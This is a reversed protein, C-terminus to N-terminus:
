TFRALIEEPASDQSVGALADERGPAALEGLARYFAIKAAGGRFQAGAWTSVYGMGAHRELLTHAHAIQAGALFEMHLPRMADATFDDVFRQGHANMETGVIIPLARARAADVFANLLAVKKAREEPAKLNWNRDPIINVAEVGQATMVDLLEDLCQEGATTGDLWALTPIAGQARSFANVESASPFDPGSPQVYGVGGAKMTKARIHGQLTPADDICAAIAESAMGLKEAWFAVRAETDQFIARAKDDYAACVHRETANGKPTRSAVDREYDLAIEALHTNVRSVLDRTRGGAISKFRELLTRDKVAGRVFGVGMHYAIGPEGPSNIVRDAFEPVFVRTELSACARLRVKGCAALFEDVGDLVDFDVLGMACLGRKRGEWALYSPSYGYGNFSFFSHAHLNFSAGQELLSIEGAHVRALLEALAADRVFPDFENLQAELADITLSM